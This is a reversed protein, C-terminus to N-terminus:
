LGHLLFLGFDTNLVQFRYRLNQSPILKTAHTDESDIHTNHQTKKTFPAILLDPPHFVGMNTHINTVYHKGSGEVTDMVM